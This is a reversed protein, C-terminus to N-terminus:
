PEQGVTISDIQMSPLQSHLALKLDAGAIGKRWGRFELVIERGHDTLGRVILTKPAGGETREAVSVALVRAMGVARSFDENSVTRTWAAMPNGVDPDASWPDEVSPLYPLTEPYAWSDGSAETRGGHSSSYYTWALEGDYTLVRGATAAVAARWRDGFRGAEKAWGDYAQDHPTTGLHCGCGPDVGEALRRVAYGRGAIAQAALAEPQWGSPMEALGRLYLEVPLHLVPQLHGDDAVTVTLSGWRFVGALGGRRALQPLRLLSPREGTGFGVRVPGPGQDIVEGEAGTLVFREGDHRLTWATPSALHQARAGGGDVTVPEAGPGGHAQVELRTADGDRTLFLNVLIGSEARPDTTIQTGPSWHALIESHSLGDLAQAQAGYQSMGVSHGWGRGTITVPAGEGPLPPPPTYAAFDPETSRPRPPRAPAEAAEAAEAAQVLRPRAPQDGERTEVRAPQASGFPATALLVATLVAVGAAASSRLLHGSLRPPAPM